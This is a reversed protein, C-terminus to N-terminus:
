PRTEVISIPFIIVADPQDVRSANHATWVRGSEKFPAAKPSIGPAAIKEKPHKGKHSPLPRRPKFAAGNMRYVSYRNDSMVLQRAGAIVLGVM